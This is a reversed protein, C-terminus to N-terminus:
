FQRPYSSPLGLEAFSFLDYGLREIYVPTGTLAGTTPDVIPVGALDIPLPKDYEIGGPRRNVTVKGDFKHNYSANLAYERFGGKGGTPDETEDKLIQYTYRYLPYKGGNEFFEQVTVGLFLGCYKPINVGGITVAANNVKNQHQIFEPRPAREVIEVNIIPLADTRIIPDLPEGLSNFRKTGTITDIDIV